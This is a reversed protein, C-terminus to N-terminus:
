TTRELTQRAMLGAAKSPGRAIEELAARLRENEESLRGLNEESEGYLRMYMESENRWREVEAWAADNKGIARMRAARLRENEARLAGREERLNANGERLARVDNKIRSLATIANEWAQRQPEWPGPDDQHYDLRQGYELRRQATEFDQEITM